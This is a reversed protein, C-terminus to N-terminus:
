VQARHSLFERVVMVDVFRKGIEARVRYRGRPGHGPADRNLRFAEARNAELEVGDVDNYAAANIVVSASAVVSALGGGLLDLEARSPALLEDGRTALRRGLATGLQGSGGLVLVRTM